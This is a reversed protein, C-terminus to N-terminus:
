RFHIREKTTSASGAARNVLFPALAAPVHVGEKRNNGASERASGSNKILFLLCLGFAAIGIPWRASRPNKRGRGGGGANSSFILLAPFSLPLSLLMKNEERSSSSWILMRFLSRTWKNRQRFPEVLGNPAESFGFVFDKSKIWLYFWYSISLLYLIYISIDKERFFISIFLASLSIGRYRVSM